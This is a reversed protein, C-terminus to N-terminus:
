KKLTLLLRPEERGFQRWIPSTLPYGNEIDKISTFFFLSSDQGANEKTQLMLNRLRIQRGSTVVLWRGSNYGFRSKYAASKIYAVGPAVKERGFSPNDHTSMDLELLFRVRHAEGKKRRDEDIIEFYADPLVRKKLQRFDGNRDKATYTVVDPDSRFETEYKWNELILDPLEIVEKEISFRFDIVALDHKLLSWRPERVWNIGHERLNKQLSRLQNENTGTPQPVSVDFLGAIFLAGRWGLWCVPEPIPNNKQQDNSPWTIYDAQYLKSLRIEM